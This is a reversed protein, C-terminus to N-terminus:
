PANSANPQRQLSERILVSVAARSSADCFQVAELPTMSGSLIREHVLDAISRWACLLQDNAYPQFDSKTMAPVM